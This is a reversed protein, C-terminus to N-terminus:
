ILVNSLARHISLHRVMDGWEVARGSVGRRNEATLYGDSGAVLDRWDSCITKLIQAVRAATQHNVGNNTMYGLRSVLSRFSPADERQKNSQSYKRSSTHRLTKLLQYRRLCTSSYM